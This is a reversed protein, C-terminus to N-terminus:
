GERRADVETVSAKNEGEPIDTRPNLAGYKDLPEDRTDWGPVWECLVKGPSVLGKDMLAEIKTQLVEAADLAEQDNELGLSEEETIISLITLTQNVTVKM